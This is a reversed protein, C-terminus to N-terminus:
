KDQDGGRTILIQSGTDGGVIVVTVDGAQLITQGIISVKKKANLKETYWDVIKAPADDSHLQLVSKGGQEAIAMTQRSGPYILSQDIRSAGGIEPPAPPAPPLPPKTAPPPAGAVPPSEPIDPPGGFGFSLFLLLGGLALIMVAMMSLVIILNRRQRNRSLDNTQPAAPPETPALYAPTTLSAGVPNTPARYGPQEDFKKTAAESLPTAKGCARCFRATEELSAGCNDCFVTGM